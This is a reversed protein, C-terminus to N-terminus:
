GRYRDALYRDFFRLVHQRYAAPYLKDAERHGAGPVIWREKPARAAHWLALFDDQSVFPDREGHIFLIPRPSLQGIWRIPSAEEVRCGLRWNVMKLVLHAFLEIVKGGIGYTAAWGSIAKVLDVYCSDSIIATVAETQSAGRIAVAAGMSFGLLGVQKIGRDELFDLAGLLDLWEYCGWSVYEGQSQGHGRFDFLLVDYGHRVLAPAHILDSDFSGGQGSLLIVTGRRRKTPIWCGGLTVGDRSSFRVREAELGYAMPNVPPDPRRRRIFQGSAIWASALLGSTVALGSLGLRGVTGMKWGVM